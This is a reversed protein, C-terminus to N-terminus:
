RYAEAKMEWGTATSVYPIIISAMKKQGTYNPHFRAGLDSDWNFATEQMTAYSINKM